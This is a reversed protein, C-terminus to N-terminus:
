AAPKAGVPSGKALTRVLSRRSRARHPRGGGHPSAGAPDTVADLRLAPFLDISAFITCRCGNKAIRDTPM